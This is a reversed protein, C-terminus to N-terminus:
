MGIGSINFNIQFLILFYLSLTHTKLEYTQITSLLSTVFLSSLLNIVNLILFFHRQVADFKILILYVRYIIFEIIRHLANLGIFDKM